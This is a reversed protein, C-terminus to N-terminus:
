VPVALARIAEEDVQVGLGPGDPVRATAGEVELGSVLMDNLFQVGNLEPPIAGETVVCDEVTAEFRMPKFPGRLGKPVSM